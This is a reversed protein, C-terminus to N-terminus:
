AALKYKKRRAYAAASKDHKIRKLYIPCNPNNCAHFYDPCSLINQEIADTKYATKFIDLPLNDYNEAIEADNILKEFSGDLKSLKIKNAIDHHAAYYNRRSNSCGKLNAVTDLWLNVDELTIKVGGFLDYQYCM